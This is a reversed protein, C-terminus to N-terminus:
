VTYPTTYATASHTAMPSQPDSGPIAWWLVSHPWGLRGKRIHGKCHTFRYHLLPDYSSSARKKASKGHIRDSLQQFATLQQKNSERLEEM